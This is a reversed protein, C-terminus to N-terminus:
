TSGKVSIRSSWLIGKTGPEAEDEEVGGGPDGMWLKVEKPLYDANTGLNGVQVDAVQPSFIVENGLM